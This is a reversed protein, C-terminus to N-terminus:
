CFTYSPATHLCNLYVNSCRFFSTIILLKCTYHNWIIWVVKDLRQQVSTMDLQTRMKKQECNQCKWHENSNTTRRSYYVLNCIRYSLTIHFFIRTIYDHSAPREIRTRSTWDTQHFIWSTALLHCPVVRENQANPLGPNFNHLGDDSQNNEKDLQTRNKAENMYSAFNRVGPCCIESIIM